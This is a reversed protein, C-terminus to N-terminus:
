RRLYPVNGLNLRSVQKFAVRTRHYHKSVAFCGYLIGWYSLQISCGAEVRDTPPKLGEQPVLITGDDLPSPCSIKM